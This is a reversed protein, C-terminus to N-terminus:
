KERLRYTKKIVSGTECACNTSYRFAVRGDNGCSDRDEGAASSPLFSQHM